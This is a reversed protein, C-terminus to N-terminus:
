CMDETWFFFHCVKLDDTSLEVEEGAKIPGIKVVSSGKDRALSEGALFVLETNEPWDQDGTNKMKWCKVFEAGPPFVQGDPVTVDCIFEANLPSDEVKVKTEVVPKQEQEEEIVLSEAPSHYSSLLEALSRSRESMEPVTMPSAIPRSLLAEQGTLPSEVGVIEPVVLEPVLPETAVRDDHNGLLDLLASSGPWLSTNHLALPPLQVQSSSLSPLSEALPTKPDDDNSFVRIPEDSFNPMAGPILLPPSPARVPSDARSVPYVFPAPIDAIPSSATRFSFSPAGTSFRQQVNPLITDPSRIKLLPHTRPHLPIPHAECEECLDYDPCTAHM